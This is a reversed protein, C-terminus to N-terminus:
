LLVIEHSSARKGEDYHMAKAWLGTAYHFNVRELFLRRGNFKVDLISEM